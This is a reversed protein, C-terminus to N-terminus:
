KEMNGPALRKKRAVHQQAVNELFKTAEDGDLTRRRLLEEALAKVLYWHEELIEAAQTKLHEIYAEGEPESVTVYSRVVSRTKRTAKIEV